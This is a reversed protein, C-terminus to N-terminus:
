IRDAATATATPATTASALTTATPASTVTPSTPALTPAPTGTAAPAATNAATQTPTAVSAARCGTLTAAGGAALWGLFARRSVAQRAAPTPRSSELSSAM